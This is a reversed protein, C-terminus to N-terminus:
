PEDPFEVQFMLEGPRLMGFKERAVREQTASDTELLHVDKRLSDVATRLSDIAAQETELDGRLQWWDWTSYEGGAAGFVLGGVIVLGALVRGRSV